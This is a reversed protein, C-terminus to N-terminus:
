CTAEFFQSAFTGSAPSSPGALVVVPGLLKVVSWFFTSYYSTGQEFRLMVKRKAVLFAQKVTEAVQQLGMTRLSRLAEASKVSGEM